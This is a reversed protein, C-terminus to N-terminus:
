EQLSHRCKVLVGGACLDEDMSILQLINIRSDIVVLALMNSNLEDLLFM